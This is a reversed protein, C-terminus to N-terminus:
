LLKGQLILDKQFENLEMQIFSKDLVKAEKSLKENMQWASENVMLQAIHQWQSEHYRLLSQAPFGSM